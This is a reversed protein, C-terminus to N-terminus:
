VFDVSDLTTSLRLNCVNQELPKKICGVWCDAGALSPTFVPKERFEQSQSMGAFPSSILITLLFLFIM